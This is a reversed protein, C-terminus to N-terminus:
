SLYKDWKPTLSDLKRGQFEEMKMQDIVARMSEFHGRAEYLSQDRFIDVLKELQLIREDNPALKKLIRNRIEIVRTNRLAEMAEEMLVAVAAQLLMTAEDVSETAEVLAPYFKEKILRRNQERKINRELEEKSVPSKKSGKKM